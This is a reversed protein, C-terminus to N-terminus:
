LDYLSADRADESRELAPGGVQNGKSDIVIILGGCVQYKEDVVDQAEQKSNCVALVSLSTFTTTVNYMTDPNAGVVILKDKM